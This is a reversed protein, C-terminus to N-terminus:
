FLQTITSLHIVVDKQTLIFEGNGVHDLTYNGQQSKVLFSDVDKVSFSYSKGESFGDKLVLEMAVNIQGSKILLGKINKITYKEGTKYYVTIDTKKRAPVPKRKRYRPKANVEVVKLNDLTNDNGDVKHDVHMTMNEGLLDNVFQEPTVKYYDVKTAGQETWGDLCIRGVIPALCWIQNSSYVRDQTLLKSFEKWDWHQTSGYANFIKELIEIYYEGFHKVFENKLVYGKYHESM